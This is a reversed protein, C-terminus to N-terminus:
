SQLINHVGRKNNLSRVQQCVVERTDHISQHSGMWSLHLRLCPVIKRKFSNEEAIPVWTKGAYKLTTLCAISRSFIPAESEGMPELSGSEVFLDYNAYNSEIMRMSKPM